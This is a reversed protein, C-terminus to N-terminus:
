EVREECTLDCYENRARLDEAADDLCKQLLEDDWNFSEASKNCRTERLDFARKSCAMM